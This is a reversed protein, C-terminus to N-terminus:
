CSIKHPHRILITDPIELMRGEPQMSCVQLTQAARKRNDFRITEYGFSYKQDLKSKIYLILRHLPDRLNTLHAPPGCTACGKNPRKNRMGQQAAQQADRTPGSTACGKNPRKNRTGQQAAQQADRTPGSTACGQIIYCFAVHLGQNENIDVTDESLLM